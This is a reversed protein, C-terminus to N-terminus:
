RQRHRERFKAVLRESVDSPFCLPSAGGPRSYASRRGCRRGARDVNYPCPCNGRYIALSRAVLFQRIEKDTAEALPICLTERQLYGTDCVWGHGTSDLSANEPIEVPLCRSRERFYGWNCEWGLGWSVAHANDPVDQGEAPFLPGTALLAATVFFLCRM